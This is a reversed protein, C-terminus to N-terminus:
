NFKVVGAEVAKDIDKRMFAPMVGVGFCVTAFIIMAM